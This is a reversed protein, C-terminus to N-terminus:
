FYSKTGVGLILKWYVPDQEDELTKDRWQFVCGRTELHKLLPEPLLSKFYFHLKAKTLGGFSLLATAIGGHTLGIKHLITLSQLCSITALTLLGVDTVKTYSLNIQRLNQSFHALPIMGTDDINSCKKIDLKALQKCGVSIAAVGLSTILRCGRSEFTNLRLCKSLSILSHDTIDQCYAINIMELGPCGQAIASIGVDTIYTCRYLDLEILKSCGFGVQAVGEDTINLCFGLKLSSLQSCRSISKLGEDDVENDTLDLEELSRCGRGILVFAERPVLVCSEMKLSTLASCCSTLYAISVYTIERCCTIDLKRLDRHKTVISSLGKDTVGLCKRLSLERLSVCVNGIAELGDFTVQSHDLIITQLAPVNRLSCGLDLTVPPGYSLILEQLHEGVGNSLFSLGFHSSRLCHTMDLKKLSKCGYKFTALFDDDIGYCGELVLDELHQLKLVSPLCKETIPLFSLDLSRIEACKVAILEVGLDGIGLCWKLDILKLKRCGVAICGIGMDTIMKCRVLRLSELNKAEALAQLASDRLNTANSLDIEVLSKCNSALNLLGTASFFMSKSLNVSRLNFKCANSVVAISSDTVVPCLTFDLHTVDPYRSLIAPLYETRLPKLSKRHKAEIEYFSKCVLSFSKKDVPNSELFDLFIFIIEESILDFLNTNTNSIEITKQKKM